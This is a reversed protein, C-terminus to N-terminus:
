IEGLTYKIKKGEGSSMKGAAVAIDIQIRIKKMDSSSFSNSALKQYLSDDIHEKLVESVRKRKLVIRAYRYRREDRAKNILETQDDDSFKLSSHMVSSTARGYPNGVRFISTTSTQSDSDGTHFVSSTHKQRGTLISSSSSTNRHAVSSVPQTNTPLHAM